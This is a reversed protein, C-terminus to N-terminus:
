DSKANDDAKGDGARQKLKGTIRTLTRRACQGTASALTTARASGQRAYREALEVVQRTVVEPVSPPPEIRGDARFHYGLFDFSEGPAVLRTKDSHCHLRREALCRTADKLAVQAQAESPCCIMFDDCYRVLRHGQATLTTDFAHLHVNSLLPSIPAGQLAGESQALSQRLRAVAAPMLAALVLAAGGMGIVKATLLRGFLARHSLALLLGDEILRRIAAKGLRTGRGMAVRAEAALGEAEDSETAELMFADDATYGPDLRRTVFDDVLGAAVDRVTLQAAALSARLQELWGAAPQASAFVDANLWLCILRLVDADNVTCAVDQLLLQHDISPFFDQIDADVMWRCGQARAVVIRQVAMEVSRGPRFAYSCDLFQSEFLPEICDLVSRQAVRDRVVPIMLERMRGDSKPVNVSRAPLPEYTRNLLNRSLEALNVNLHREFQQISVADVGAAGRNARVKRWARYLAAPLAIQRLLPSPGTATNTIQNMM